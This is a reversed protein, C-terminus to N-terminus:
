NGRERTAPSASSVSAILHKLAEKEKDNTLTALCARLPAADCKKKLEALVYGAFVYKGHNEIARQKKAERGKAKQERKHAAALLAAHKEKLAKREEEIRRKIEELNAM